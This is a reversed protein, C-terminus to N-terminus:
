NLKDGRVQMKTLIREYQMLEEDSLKRLDYKPVAREEEVQGPALCRPHFYPAAAKAVRLRRVLPENEDNLVKLMLELPRILYKELLTEVRRNKSGKKRGAGPRAGGHKNAINTM